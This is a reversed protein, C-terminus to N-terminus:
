ALRAIRARTYRQLLIPYVNALVNAVFLYWAWGHWGIHWAYACTAFGMLLLVLHSQESAINRPLFAQAGRRGRIMRFDPEHRRRWRNAFDGDPVLRRFWRVGVFEYLRGSREFGRVRYYSPPAWWLAVCVACATLFWVLSPAVDGGTYGYPRYLGSALAWFRLMPVIWGACM